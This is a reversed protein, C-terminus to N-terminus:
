KQLHHRHRSPASIINLMENFLNTDNQHWNKLFRIWKSIFTANWLNWHPQRGLFSSSPKSIIEIVNETLSPAEWGKRDLPTNLKIFIHYVCTGQSNLNKKKYFIWIGLFKGHKLDRAMFRVLDCCMPQSASIFCSSFFLKEDRWLRGGTWDVIKLKMATCLYCAVYNLFAEWLTRLDQLM